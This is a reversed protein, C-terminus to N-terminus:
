AARGFPIRDLIVMPQDRGAHYFVTIEHLVIPKNVVATTMHQLAKMMAARETADEIRDTLSIHLRFEEMVYPYGWHELMQTQHVTLKNRMYHAM